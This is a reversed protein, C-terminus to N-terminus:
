ASFDKMALALQRSAAHTGSHSKLLSLRSGSLSIPNQKKKIMDFSVLLKGAFGIVFRLLSEFLYVSNFIKEVHFIALM